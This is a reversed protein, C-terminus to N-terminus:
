NTLLIHFIKLHLILDTFIKRAIELELLSTYLYKILRINYKQYCYKM